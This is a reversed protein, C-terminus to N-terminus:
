QAIRGIEDIINPPTCRLVGFFKPEALGDLQVSVSVGRDEHIVTGWAPLRIEKGEARIVELYIDPQVIVRIGHEFHSM